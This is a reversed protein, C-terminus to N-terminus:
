MSSIVEDDNATSSSLSKKAFDSEQEHRSEEEGRFALIKPSGTKM